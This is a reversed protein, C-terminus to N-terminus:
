STATSSLVPIGSSSSFSLSLDSLCNIVSLRLQSPTKTDSGKMVEEEEVMVESGSETKTFPGDKEEEEGRENFYSIHAACKM